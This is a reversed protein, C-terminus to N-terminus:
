NDHAPQRSNRRKRPESPKLFSPFDKDRMPASLVGALKGQVDLVPLNTQGTQRMRNWAECLLEDPSCPDIRINRTDMVERVRVHDSYNSMAEKLFTSGILGVYQKGDYVATAKLNMTTFLHLVEGLRTQPSVVTISSTMRDAVRTMRRNDMDEWRTRIQEPEQRRGLFKNNQAAGATDM